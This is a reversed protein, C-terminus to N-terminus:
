LKETKKSKNHRVYLYGIGIGFILLLFIHGPMLSIRAPGFPAELIALGGFLPFYQSSVFGFIAGIIGGIILPDITNNQNEVYIMRNLGLFSIFFALIYFFYYENFQYFIDTLEFLQCIGSFIYFSAIGYIIYSMGKKHKEKELIMRIGYGVIIIGIIKSLTFAFLFSDVSSDIKDYDILQLSILFLLYFIIVGGIIFGIGKKTTKKM